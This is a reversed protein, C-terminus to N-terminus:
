TRAGHACILRYLVECCASDLDCCLIVAVADIRIRKRVQRHPKRMYVEIVIRQFSHLVQLNGGETNLIM